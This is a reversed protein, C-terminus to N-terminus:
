HFVLVNIGSDKTVKSCYNHIQLLDAHLETLLMELINGSQYIYKLLFHISAVRSYRSRSTSCM